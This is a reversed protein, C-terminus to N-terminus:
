KYADSTCRRRRVCLARQSISIVNLALRGNGTTYQVLIIIKVATKMDIPGKKNPTQKTRNTVPRAYQEPIMDISGMTLALTISGCAGPLVNKKDRATSSM